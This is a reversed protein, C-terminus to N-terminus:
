KDRGRDSINKMENAKKRGMTKFVFIGLIEKM